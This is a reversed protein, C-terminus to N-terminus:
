TGVVKIKFKLVKGALPHNLDLTANEETMKTIKAPMKAGNPLQMMLMAGEKAEPPLQNKPIDKVLQPNPEGYADAPQITVEKEEDKEMGMVANDFGPIVMGSGVEFELPQGHKESSDFVTGDELTGTYEIKIKDGKKVAMFILEMM